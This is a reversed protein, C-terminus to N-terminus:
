WTNLGAVEKNEILFSFSILFLPEGQSRFFLFLACYLDLKQESAGINLCFFHEMHLDGMHFIAVKLVSHLESFAIFLQQGMSKWTQVVIWAM